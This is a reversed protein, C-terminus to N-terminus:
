NINRVKSPPTLWYAGKVIEQKLTDNIKREPQDLPRTVLRLYVSEGVPSQVHQLAHRMVVALQLILSLIM